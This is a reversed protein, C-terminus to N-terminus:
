GYISPEKVIYGRRLWYARVDDLCSNCVPKLDCRIVENGKYLDYTMCDWNLNGCYNCRTLGNGTRRRITIVKREM